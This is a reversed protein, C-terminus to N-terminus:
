PNRFLRAFFVSGRTPSSAGAREHIHPTPKSFSDCHARTRPSIVIQTSPSQAVFRHTRTRSRGARERGLAGRLSAPLVQSLHALRYRFRRLPGGQNLGPRPAPSGSYEGAGHSRRDRHSKRQHKPTTAAVPDNRLAISGLRRGPICLRAYRHWAIPSSTASGARLSSGSAGGTRRPVDSGPELTQADFQRLLGSHALPHQAGSSSPTVM